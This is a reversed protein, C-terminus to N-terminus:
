SAESVTVQGNMLMPLLWNRLSELKRNEELNSVINKIMPSVLQDFEILISSNPIAHLRNVAEIPSLNKQSTGSSIRELWLRFEPRQYTLYFYNKLIPDTQFKGVRQNLLLNQEDVLCIRGVNGTLSILIDQLALISSADIDTPICKVFDTNSLELANDQVNKITVIKYTGSDLYSASKFPYGSSIQIMESINRVSWTYPVEKKLDKNYVMKGGSSRFPRGIKDPFDFQIFWYDYILKAITELEKNIKINLEIKKDFSLLVESIKKQIHLPPLSISKSSIDPTTIQPQGSGIGNQRNLKLNYYLYDVDLQMTKPVLSLLRIIPFYPEKRIVVFGVNSGRAAITVAPETIRATDTYGYLGYKKESNAFIPIKNSNSKNTSFIKPRDGGVIIDAVDGIKFISFKKNM